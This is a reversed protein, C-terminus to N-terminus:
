GHVLSAIELFALVQPIMAVRRRAGRGTVEKIQEKEQEEMIKQLTQTWSDDQEETGADPLEEFSDRDASWVKAFAFLGSDKQKTQDEEDGERETKEILKELDQDTDLLCIILVLKTASYIL